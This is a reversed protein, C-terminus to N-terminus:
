LVALADGPISGYGCMSHESWGLDLRAPLLSRADGMFKAISPFPAVRRSRRSWEFRMLKSCGADTRM